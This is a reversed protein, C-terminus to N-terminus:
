RLKLDMGMNASFGFKGYVEGLCFSFVVFVSFYDMGLFSLVGRVVVRLKLVGILRVLGVEFLM